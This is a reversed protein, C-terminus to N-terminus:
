ILFYYFPINSNSLGMVSNFNSLYPEEHAPCAHKSNFGLMSENIPISLNSAANIEDPLKKEEDEETKIKEDCKLDNAKKEFLSKFPREKPKIDSNHIKKPKANANQFESAFLAQFPKIDEKPASNTFNPTEIQEVKKEKNPPDLSKFEAMKKAIIQSLLRKRKKLNMGAKEVVKQVLNGLFNVLENYENCDLFSRNEYQGGKREWFYYLYLPNLKNCLIYIDEVLLNHDIGDWWLEGSENKNQYEKSYIRSDTALKIDNKSGILEEIDIKCEIRSQIKQLISHLSSRKSCNFQFRPCLNYIIMSRNIEENLPVVRVTIINPISRYLLISKTTQYPSRKLAM